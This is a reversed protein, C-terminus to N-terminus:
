REANKLDYYFIYQQLVGSFGAYKEFPFGQPYERELVKRIHTDVPFADMKHLAFLCICDAVKKGIGPFKLLEEKAKEYSLSALNELSVQKEEVMQATKCIYKSRYGFKLARLEEEPIHALATADPFTYYIKGDASVCKRGYHECLTRILGKIRPINNQQSIIFSVVMEWVDQKLIRIGSGFEAAECLYTDERDIAEIYDEYPTDLDFYQKWFTEYEETGCLLRTKEQGAEIRLYRDGATVEYTHEGTEDLRFCQGSECIQGIQFCTNDIEVM